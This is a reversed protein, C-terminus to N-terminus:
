GTLRRTVDTRRERAEAVVPKLRAEAEEARARYLAANPATTPIAHQRAALIGIAGQAGRAALSPAVLSGTLGAVFTGVGAPV